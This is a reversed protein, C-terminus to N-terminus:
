ARLSILERLATWHRAHPIYFGRRILSCYQESLGTARAMTGLSVGQLKPLIDRQFVEPDVESGHETEWAAQEQM